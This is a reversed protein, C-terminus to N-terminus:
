LGFLQGCRIDLLQDVAQNPIRSFGSKYDTGIRGLRLLVNLLMLITIDWGWITWICIIYCELLNEIISEM